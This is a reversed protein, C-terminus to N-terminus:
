DDIALEHATVDLYRLYPVPGPAVEVAAIEEDYRVYGPNINGIEAQDAVISGDVTPSGQISVTSDPAYVLAAITPNGNATSVDGASSFLLRTQAPASENGIVANGRADLDGDVVIELENDGDVDLSGDYNPDGISDRVVITVDGDTTDITHDDDITEVCYHESGTVRSDLDTFEGDCDDIMASIQTEVSPYDYGSNSVTGTVLEDDVTDARVDGEVPPANQHADVDHAIIVSDIPAITPPIHLDSQVQQPQDSACEETVSGPVSSRLEQEWGECYASEIEISVTGAVGGAVSQDHEALDLTEPSGSQEIAGGIANGSPPTDALRLPSFTLTQSHYELTPSSVQATGDSNSRWVGGGQYAVDTDDVSYQVAGLPERYLEESGADTSHTIRLQGSDPYTDVSGQDFAGVSVPRADDTATTTEATHALEVLQQEAADIEVSTEYGDLTATGVIFVAVSGTAVMGFLLILGILHSQGRCRDRDTRAMTAPRALRSEGDGLRRRPDFVGRM